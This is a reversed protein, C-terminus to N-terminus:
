PGTRRRIDAALPDEKSQGRMALYMRYSEAFGASNLGERVRGQYYYVAPLYGYTPQEDLFLSLAEGRRKLCRDFESDAQIFQGAALYARGLEFHGVWTDLLANGDTLAKIAQPLAGSKLAILGEIIKAHAQAAAPLQSALGAGVARGREIRDAEVLSRAALFQVNVTRGHTLAQEAAAQAARTEGRSLYAYAAAAFKVAARDPNKDALDAAAGQELMRAAESFRGEYVALDALGSSAYSTGQAGLGALRQYTDRAERVKGQGLQGFALALVPFVRPERVARAEREGAEFNGSYSEYLALNGRLIVSQPVIKVVARMEDVAKPMNRLFTSCLALQNHAAVDAAYRAILDGYEKVCAPYDGTVRYFFGRARFRERETMGDVHRLAEKIYKEADQPKDLNRSVQALGQYGMGFNPDMQVARSFGEFAEDYKGNSWAETAAAYQRVVELSTASLTDMAFLQASESTDDGLATRISAAMETVAPLVEDRTRVRDETTTIVDGTVAQIAKVAVSFGTGDRVLSGSVVVGFGQRVAIEQAARENLQEPATGGLARVGTRDFASIFGAGELALKLMPELTRDFAPDNTRNEFDAIVVSVPDPQAVPEVARRTVYFTAATLAIVVLATAAVLRPTLRRVIPLLEGQDDLRDLEAVLAATTQFRASADPEVCRRVVRELAEPIAPDFARLPPPPDRKPSRLEALSAQPRVGPGLLMDSAILGLAYLDARHDVAEGRAQEPAMYAVTGVITGAMTAESTQPGARRIGPPLIVTTAAPPAGSASRAIGFDMIVANDGEIMINAPKLDRHVVGADHAAALGSAVQRMIRLAAPVELKGELRLTTALDAGDIYSMTIYKIGDIEGLDHIRVVNKHTVQRALLLEQKFRREVARTSDRDATAEPRIVKLAVVVDLEGDWAQYVAGMGGMGLLRIIRYRPGFMQGATLPGPGQQRTRSESLVFTADDLDSTASGPADTRGTATSATSTTSEDDAGPAGPREPLRTVESDPPLASSGRDKLNGM